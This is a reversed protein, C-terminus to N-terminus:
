RPAASPPVKPMRSWSTPMTATRWSMSDVPSILGMGSASSEIYSRPISFLADARKIVQTELWRHARANHLKGWRTRSWPDRLGRGLPCQLDVEPRIWDSPLHVAYRPHLQGDIQNRRVIRLGRMVAHGFWGIEDDPFGFLGRTVNRRWAKWSQRDVHTHPVGNPSAAAAGRRLSQNRWRVIATFGRFAGTRFITLRPDARRVLADDLQISHKYFAPDLTLVSTAWGHM